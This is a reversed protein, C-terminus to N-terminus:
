YFSSMLVWSSFCYANLLHMDSSLLLLNPGPLVTTFFPSILDTITAPPHPPYISIARVLTYKNLMDTCLLVKQSLLLGKPGSVISGSACILLSKDMATHQATLKRGSLDAPLVAHYHNLLHSVQAGTKWHKLQLTLKNSKFLTGAWGWIGYYIAAILDVKERWNRIGFGLFLVKIQGWIMLLTIGQSDPSQETALTVLLTQKWGLAKSRTLM